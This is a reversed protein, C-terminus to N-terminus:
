DIMYVDLTPFPEDWRAADLFNPIDFLNGDITAPDPVSNTDETPTLVTQTLSAMRKQERRVERAADTAGAEEFMQAAQRLATIAEGCQLYAYATSIAKLILNIAQYTSTGNYDITYRFRRRFQDSEFQTRILLCANDMAKQVFSLRNPDLVDGDPGMGHLAFGNIYIKMFAYPMMFRNRDQRDAFTQYEPEITNNIKYFWGDIRQDFSTLLDIEEQRLPNLQLQSKPFQAKADAAITFGVIYACIRHDVPQCFPSTLLNKALPLYERMKNTVFPRNLNLMLDFCCLTFWTRARQVLSPTHEIADDGLQLAATNLGLEASLSATYGWLRTRGTWATLLMLASVFYIDPTPGAFSNKILEDATALYAKYKDPRIARAAITCIVSGMLGHQTIRNHAQYIQDDMFGVVTRCNEHFFDYLDEWEADSIIGHTVVEAEVPPTNSSPNSMATTSLLAMTNKLEEVEARHRADMADLRQELLALKHSIIDDEDTAGAATRIPRPPVFVCEASSARCRQCPIQSPGGCKLKKQRCRLCASLSRSTDAM